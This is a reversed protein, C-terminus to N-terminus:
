GPKRCGGDARLAPDGVEGLEVPEQAVRQQEGAVPEGLPALIEACRIKVLRRSSNPLWTATALM